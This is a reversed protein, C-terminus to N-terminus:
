ICKPIELAEILTQPSRIWQLILCREPESRCQYQWHSKEFIYSYPRRLNVWVSLDRCGMPGAFFFFYNVMCHAIVWENVGRLSVLACWLSIGWIAFQFRNPHPDNSGEGTLSFWNTVDSLNVTCYKGGTLKQLWCKLAFCFLRTSTWYIYLYRINM